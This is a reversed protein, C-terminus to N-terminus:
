PTKPLTNCLYCEAMTSSERYPITKYHYKPITRNVASIVACAAPGAPKGRPVGFVPGFRFWWRLSEVQCTGGVIQCVGMRKPTEM